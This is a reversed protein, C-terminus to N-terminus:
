CMGGGCRSKCYMRCYNLRPVGGADCVYSNEYFVGHTCSDCIPEENELWNVLQPTEAIKAM